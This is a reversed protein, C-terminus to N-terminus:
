AKVNRSLAVACALTAVCFMILQPVFYGLSFVDSTMLLKGWTAPVARGIYSFVSPLMDAPMMIGSLMVSPLFFLQAIMSVKAHDKIWVGLASGIALSSAIFMALSGFYLPLNAPHAADFLLPAVFFIIMSMIFLHIFASIFHTIVGVSLPIGNAKYVNRIDTGYIQVLSPPLGTFAGMSVGFITMSQIIADQMDPMISSLVGGMVAFMVLPILYFSILVDQKRFDLKWQLGTGYVFASM